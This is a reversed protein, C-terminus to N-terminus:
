EASRQVGAGLAGEDDESGDGAVLLDIAGEVRARASVEELVHRAFLEDLGNVDHVAALTIDGGLDAGPEGLVKGAVAERAALDLHEFVDRGPQAVLLDGVLELEGFGGDVSVHLADEFFEVDAVPGM